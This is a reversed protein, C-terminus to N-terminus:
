DFMSYMFYIKSRVNDIFLIQLCQYDIAFYDTPFVCMTKIKEITFSMFRYLFDM